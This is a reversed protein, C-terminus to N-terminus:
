NALHSPNQRLARSLKKLGSRDMKVLGVNLLNRQMTHTTVLADYTTHLHFDARIFELGSEFM